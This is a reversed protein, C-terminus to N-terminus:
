AEDPFCWDPHDSARWPKIGKPDADRSKRAYEFIKRSEESTYLKRFEDLQNNSKVIEAQFRQLAEEAQRWTLVTIHLQPTIKYTRRM